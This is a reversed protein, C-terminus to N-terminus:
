GAEGDANPRCKLWARAPDALARVYFEVAREIWERGFEAESFTKERAMAAKSVWVEIARDGIDAIIEVSFLGAAARINSQGAGGWGGPIGEVLDAKLQRVLEAQGNVPM